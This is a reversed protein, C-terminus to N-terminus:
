KRTSGARGIRCAMILVVCRTKSPWIKLRSVSLHSLQPIGRAFYSSMGFGQGPRGGSFFGCIDISSSSHALAPEEDCAGRHQWQEAEGRAAVQASNPGRDTRCIFVVALCYLSTPSM